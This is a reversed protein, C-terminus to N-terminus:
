ADLSIGWFNGVIAYRFFGEFCLIPFLRSYFTKLKCNVISYRVDLILFLSILVRQGFEGTIILLGLLLFVIILNMYNLPRLNYLLAFRLLLLFFVFVAGQFDEKLNRQILVELRDQLFFVVLFATLILIFGNIPRKLEKKLSKNLFSIIPYLILVVQHFLAGILAIRPALAFLFIFVVTAFGQRIVNGLLSNAAYSLHLILLLSACCLIMDRASKVKYLFILSSAVISMLFEVPIIREILLKFVIFVRHIVSGYDTTM